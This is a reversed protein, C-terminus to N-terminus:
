RLDTFGGECMCKRSLRQAAGKGPSAKLLSHVDGERRVRASLLQEPDVKTIHFQRLSPWARVAVRVKKPISM